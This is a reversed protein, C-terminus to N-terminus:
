LYEPHRECRCEANENAAVIFSQDAKGLRVSLHSHERLEATVFSRDHLVCSKSQLTSFSSFLSYEYPHVFSQIKSRVSSPLACRDISFRGRNPSVRCFRARRRSIYPRLPM